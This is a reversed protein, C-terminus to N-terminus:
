YTQILIWSIFYYSAEGAHCRVKLWWDHMRYVATQYLTYMRTTGDFEKFDTSPLRSDYWAHDLVLQCARELVKCAGFSPSYCMHHWSNRTKAWVFPTLGTQSFVMDWTTEVSVSPIAPCSVKSIIILALFALFSNKFKPFFSEYQLALRMSM